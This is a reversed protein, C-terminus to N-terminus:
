IQIEELVLVHTFPKIEKHTDSCMLLHCYEFMEKLVFSINELEKIKKVKYYKTIVLTENLVYKIIVYPIKRWVQIKCEYYSKVPFHYYREMFNVNDIIRKYKSQIEFYIHPNLIESINNFFM